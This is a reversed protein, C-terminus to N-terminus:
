EKWDPLEPEKPIGELRFHAYSTVNNDGVLELRKKHLGAATRAYRGQGFNVDSDLFTKSPLILYVKVNIIDSLKANFKGRGVEGSTTEPKAFVKRNEIITRGNLEVKMVYSKRNKLKGWECHDLILTLPLEGQNMKLYDAYRKVEAAMRNLPANELYQQAHELDKYRKLQRYLARDYSNKAEGLMREVSNIGQPWLTAITEDDRVLQLWKVAEAQNQAQLYRNKKVELAALARSRFDEKLKSLEPTEPKHDMLARAAARVQNEEMLGQYRRKFLLWGRRQQEKAVKLRADQRLLALEEKQEKTAVDAFPLGMDELERILKHLLDERETQDLLKQWTVLRLQNQRRKEELQNKVLSVLRDSLQNLLGLREEFQQQDQAEPHLPLQELKKQIARAKAADPMPQALLAEVEARLSRLAERNERKKRSLAAEEVIRRAEEVHESNPFEEVFKEALFARTDQDARTIEEWALGSRRTRSEDLLRKATQRPFFWQSVLHRYGPSTYYRDLWLSARTLEEQSASPNDLVAQVERIRQSDQAGEAILAGTLALLLWLFFQMAEVLLCRRGAQELNKREASETGFRPQLLRSQKRLKRPSSKGGLLQWIKWSSLRSYRKQFRALDIANRRDVAWVFGDELNFAPLPSIQRPREVKRPRGDPGPQEVIESVGFASVAFAKFNGATVANRLTDVLGRHPPEPNGHLFRQLENEIAEQDTPIVHARRDWKNILLAVPANYRPGDQMEGRLSQFAQKLRRMEEFLPRSSQDPHPAEALVLIGDMTTLHERLRKALEDDSIGPDILEGSYDILEVSMAGQDPTTFDFLFRFPELQNPNPPPVDGKELRDRAQRLWQQGLFFATEPRRPDWTSPDGKPKKLHSPAEIWDCTYNEPHASRNMALAALICTKGSAARGYLAFRYIKGTKSSPTASM